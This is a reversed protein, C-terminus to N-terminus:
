ISASGSEYSIGYGLDLWTSCTLTSCNPTKPHILPKISPHKISSGSENKVPILGLYTAAQPANKFCGRQFIPLLRASVVKGIGKISQLLRRDHALKPPFINSSLKKL